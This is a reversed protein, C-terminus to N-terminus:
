TLWLFVEGHDLGKHRGGRKREAEGVVGERLGCYGAGGFPRRWHGGFWHGMVVVMPMMMVPMMVMVVHM